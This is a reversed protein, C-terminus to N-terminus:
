TYQQIAEVGEDRWHHGVGDVDGDEVPPLTGGSTDRGACCDTVGHSNVEGDHSCVWGLLLDELVPHRTVLNHKSCIVLTSLYHISYRHFKRTEHTLSLWHM